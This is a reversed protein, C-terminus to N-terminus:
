MSQRILTELDSVSGGVGGIKTMVYFLFILTIVVIGLTLMLMLKLNKPVEGAAGGQASSAFMALWRPSLVSDVEVASDKSPDLNVWDTPQIIDEPHFDERQYLGCPLVTQLSAPWGTPYRISRIRKPNVSYTEGKFKVLPGQVKLLRPVLSKDKEMFFCLMKGALRHRQFLLLAVPTVLIMFFM